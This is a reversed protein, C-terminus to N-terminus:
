VFNYSPLSDCRVTIGRPQNIFQHTALAALRNFTLKSEPNICPMGQYNRQIPHGNRFFDLNFFDLASVINSVYAQIPNKTDYYSRIAYM